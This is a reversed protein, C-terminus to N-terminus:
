LGGEKRRWQSITLRVSDPEGLLNHDTVSTLVEVEQLNDNCEIWVKTSSIIEILAEITRRPEYRSNLETSQETTSAVVRQEEGMLITRKESKRRSKLTTPFTYREISGEGSIWALRV